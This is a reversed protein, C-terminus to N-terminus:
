KRQAPIAASYVPSGSALEKERKSTLLSLGSRSDPAWIKALFYSDGYRNFVLAGKSSASNRSEPLTMQFVAPSGSQARVTLVGSSHHIVYEGAPMLTKGMRFDFPVNARLDVSQAYLSACAMAAFLGTALCLQKM